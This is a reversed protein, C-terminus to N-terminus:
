TTSIEAKDDVSFEFVKIVFEVKIIFLYLWLLVFYRFSFFSHHILTSVLFELLLIVKLFFYFRTVSTSVIIASYFNLNLSNSSRLFRLVCLILLINFKSFNRSLSSISISSTFSFALSFPYLLSNVMPQGHFGWLLGYPGIYVTSVFCSCARYAWCNSTFICEELSTCGM